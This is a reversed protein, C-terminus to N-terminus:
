QKRQPVGYPPSINGVQKEKENQLCDIEITNKTSELFYFVPILKKKNKYTHLM